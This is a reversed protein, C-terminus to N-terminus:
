RSGPGDRDAAGPEAGPAANHLRQLLPWRELALVAVEMRQVDLYRFDAPEDLYRRLRTIDDTTEAPVRMTAM